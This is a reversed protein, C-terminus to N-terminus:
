VEQPSYKQEENHGLVRCVTSITKTHNQQTETSWIARVFSFIVKKALKGLLIAL